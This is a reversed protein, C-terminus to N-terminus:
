KLTIEIEALCHESNTAYKSGIESAIRITESSNCSARRGFRRDRLIIKYKQDKYLFHFRVKRVLDDNFNKM